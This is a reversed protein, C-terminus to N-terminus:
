IKKALNFAFLTFSMCTLCLWGYYYNDDPLFLPILIGLLGLFGFLTGFGKLFSSSTKKIIAQILKFKFFLFYSIFLILASLLYVLISLM